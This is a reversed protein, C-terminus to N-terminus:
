KISNLIDEKIAAGFKGGFEKMGLMLPKQFFSIGQIGKKKISKSILYALGSVFQGTKKSRGKKAGHGKIGKRKIWKSLIDIPPGKTTYKFPSLETKGKYDQFSRKVKNGSVGKDVYKGYAAMKFRVTVTGGKRIVFFDISNELAGGKGAASLNGKAEKVVQSGFSKLYRELSPINM